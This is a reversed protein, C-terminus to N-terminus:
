RRPREYCPNKRERKEEQVLPSSWWVHKWIKPRIRHSKGPVATKMSSGNLTRSADISIDKLIKIILETAGTVIIDCLMEDEVNM